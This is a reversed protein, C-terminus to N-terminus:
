AYCCPASNAPIHTCNTRDHPDVPITTSFWRRISPPLAGQGRRKQWLLDAFRCLAM